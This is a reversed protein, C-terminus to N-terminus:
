SVVVAGPARALADHLQDPSPPKAIHLDFGAEAARRRDEPLAYGTVAVLRAHFAADARLQRAVEYGDLEPLGIDCLVVDPHFARARVVGERGDHAVEVEHGDLELMMRLAEAGEVNDEVVLVRRAAPPLPAEVAAPAPARASLPLRVVLEAGRGEGESRAELTGGHLEVLGRALPLGLGLGGKSRSLGVEAQVFPEFVRDLIAPAIGVGTDVVRVVARGDERSASVRV